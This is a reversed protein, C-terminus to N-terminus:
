WEIYQNSPRSKAVADNLKDEAGNIDVCLDLGAICAATLTAVRGVMM